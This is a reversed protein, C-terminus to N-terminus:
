GVRAWTLAGADTGGDHPAVAWEPPLYAKGHTDLTTKTKVVDEASLMVKSVRSIHEADYFWVFWEPSFQWNGKKVKLKGGILWWTGKGDRVTTQYLKLTFNKGNTDTFRLLFVEPLAKYDPPM